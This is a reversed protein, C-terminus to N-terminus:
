YRGFAKFMVADTVDLVYKLPTRKPIGLFNGLLRTLEPGVPTRWFLSHSNKVQLYLRRLGYRKEAPIHWIPLGLDSTEINTPHHPLGSWIRKIYPSGDGVKGLSTYLYSLCHAEENLKDLSLSHREILQTWLPAFRETLIRAVGGTIALFEGGFYTPVTDYVGSPNLSQFVEGMQKRSLGNIPESPSYGVDYVVCGDKRIQEFLPAVNQTFVCDSDLLLLADNDTCHEAFHRVVDFIYFQNRWSGYYGQPTCFTLPLYVKEVGLRDLLEDFIVGDVSVPLERTNSFLIHRSQANHRVSTAFFCAVSRMYVLQFEPSSSKGGVQHYLSEQGEEELYLWTAIIEEPHGNRMNM